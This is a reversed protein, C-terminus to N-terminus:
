LEGVKVIEVDGKRFIVKGVCSMNKAETLPDVIVYKVRYKQLVIIKESCNGLFLLKLEHRRETNNLFINGHGYMTAIIPRGTLANIMMGMEEGAGIVDDRATNKVIWEAVDVFHEQPFYENLEVSSAQIFPDNIVSYWFNLSAFVPILTLAMVNLIEGNLSRVGYSALLVYSYPLLGIFRSSWLDIGFPKLIEPFLRMGAIISIFLFLKMANEDKEKYMRLLALFILPILYLPPLLSSLKRELTDTIWFRYIDEVHPLLFQAHLIVNVIFPSFTLLALALSIMYKRNKIALVLFFTILPAAVAYHTWLSLGAFLGGLYYKRRLSFYLSIMGLIPALEKPNPYRHAPLLLLSLSLVFIGATEGWLNKAIWYMILLMLLSFVAQLMLMSKEIGVIKAFIAVILHYLFPYWNPPVNYTQDLFPNRGLYIGRAIAAHVLTDGGIIYGPPSKRTLVYPLFILAWSIILFLARKNKM